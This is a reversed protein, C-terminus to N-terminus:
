TGETVTQGPHNEPVVLLDNPDCRLLAILQYVSSLYGDKDRTRGQYGPWDLTPLPPPYDAGYKAYQLDYIERLCYACTELEFLLLEAHGLEKFIKKLRKKDIGLITAIEADQLPFGYHDLLYGPIPSNAALVMLDALVGRAEPSLARKKEDELWTSPRIEVARDTPFRRPKLM